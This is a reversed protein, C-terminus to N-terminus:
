GSRTFCPRVTIFGEKLKVDSVPDALYTVPTPRRRQAMLWVSLSFELLILILRLKMPLEGSRRITTTLTADRLLDRDAGSEIIAEVDTLDQTRIFRLPETLMM